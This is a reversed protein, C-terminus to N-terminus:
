QQEGVADKWIMMAEAAVDVKGSELVHGIERDRYLISAFGSTRIPAVALEHNIAFQMRRGELMDKIGDTFPIYTPKFVSYALAMRAPVQEDMYRGILRDQGINSMWHSVGSFQWRLDRAQLGRHVTNPRQVSALVKHGDGVNRYGLSPFALVSWDKFRSAPFMNDTPQEDGDELVRLCFVNGNEQVGDIRYVNDDLLILANRLWQHAEMWGLQEILNSM